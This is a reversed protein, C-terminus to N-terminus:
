TNKWNNSVEMTAVAVQGLSIGGDNPPVRQHWYPVYGERRLTRVAGGLLLENQFCGGTLVVDPLGSRQAVELILEALSRHFKASVESPSKYAHLDAIVGLVMPEWDILLAGSDKRSSISFSYSGPTKSFEGAKWECEMAAQGEYSFQQRIGALSAVADFLRGMSSTMPTNIKRKLITRLSEMESELFSHMPALDTRKFADEGEMEYLLGLACRRPERAAIEGGPLPFHRLHAFREVGDSMVRLFEGGWITGDGGYGTGDWAVGLVPPQVENDAMCSAVHALHHQVTVLRAGAAAMMEPAAKTSLYDPHDDSAIMEPATSYLRQLDTITEQFASYSLESGLDGLHQSIYVSGTVSLAVTNKMHAGLALVSPTSSKLLVPLPAYGRARRLISIRGEMVRVISDDAHRLIPRNHVLFYDAIGKLRVLADHEDTCIPEDSRNGSTAVVPAGLRHMLLHHLPTCPLMIGLVPNGPAVDEAIRSHGRRHRLLVIPAEPSTLLGKELESIECERNAGELSPEMIAFPKEERHKLSRLRRVADNSRADVLLQFGGMGKLAVIAGSTIAAAAADLAEERIGLIRGDSDWWELHPGCQDCANPQAHFRRDLPDDYERRCDGCMVFKDMSTNRRDYPLASIISFRPGCQTCNTFPYAHRRNQQDFIEKLCDPCTAIDPQVLAGSIGDSQSDRIEFGKENLPAIWISEMSQIFSRPPQDTSIRPIFHELLIFEGEVEIIVGRSTNMVWGSLGHDRALRYIFPRFGVGQVGGCITLRVRGHTNLNVDM